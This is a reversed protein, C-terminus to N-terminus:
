EDAYVKTSVEKTIPQQLDDASIQVRVRQDGPRVGQAQIRFTTESKPHWNLYPLLSSANAKSPTAHRM